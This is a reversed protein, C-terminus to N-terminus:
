ASRNGMRQLVDALMQKVQEAVPSGLREFYGISERYLRAAEELDGETEALVGLNATDYGLLRLNNLRINIDRSQNLYDRAEGFRGTQRMVTSLQNLAGAKGELDGLQDVIRISERLSVEAESSNGQSNQVRGMMMLTASKGKLDGLREKIDLSQQYLAMAGNLDGRRVLVGAMNSMADSQIKLDGLQKATDLSQQYLAMAGNLDGRTALVGAMQHLTANKGKENEAKAWAILARDFLQTAEDLRGQNSATIAVHHLNSAHQNLISKDTEKTEDVLTLARQLWTARESWYGRVGWFERLGLADNVIAKKSDARGQSAWAWELAALVNDQEAQLVEYDSSHENGWKSDADIVAYKAEELGADQMKLHRKAWDVATAHLAYREADDRELTIVGHEVLADLGDSAEGCAAQAAEVIMRPQPFITL